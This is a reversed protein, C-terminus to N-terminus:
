IRQFINLLLGFNNTIEVESSHFFSSHPLHVPVSLDNSFFGQLEVHLLAFHYYSCLCFIFTCCSYQNSPFCYLLRLTKLAEYKLITTSSFPFSMLLFQVLLLMGSFQKFDVMFCHTVEFSYPEAGSMSHGLGSTHLLFMPLLSLFM